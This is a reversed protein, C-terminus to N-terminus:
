FYDTIRKEGKYLQICGHHSLSDSVIESLRMTCGSSCEVQCRGFGAVSRVWKIVGKRTRKRLEHRSHCISGAFKRHERLSPWQALGLRAESVSGLNGISDNLNTNSTLAKGLCILCHSPCFWEEMWARRSRTLSLCPLLNYSLPFNTPLRWMEHISIKLHSLGTQLWVQSAIVNCQSSSHIYHKDTHSFYWYLYM